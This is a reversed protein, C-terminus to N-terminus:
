EGRVTLPFSLEDGNEMTCTLAITDPLDEFQLFKWRYKWIMEVDREGSPYREREDPFFSSGTLRNGDGDALRCVGKPVFQENKPQVRLTLYLGLPSIEAKEFVARCYENEYSEQPQLHIVGEVLETKPVDFSIELTEETMGGMGNEEPVGSVAISWGDPCINLDEEPCFHGDPWGGWAPIVYYGEARKQELEQRYDGQLDILVTPRVPRFVKIRMEVHANEKGDAHILSLDMVEGCRAIGEPYFENPLWQDEFGNSVSDLSGDEGGSRAPVYVVGPECAEGNVTLKEVRCWIPVETHKNELTLDFALKEGDYVASEVKLRADDTEAEQWITTTIYPGEQEWEKLFDLVNWGCMAAIGVSMLLVIILVILVTGLSVRKKMPTREENEARSLVKEPLWPDERIDSLADDLCDKLNENKM